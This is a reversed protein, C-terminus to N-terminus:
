GDEDGGKSLKRKELKKRCVSCNDPSNDNGQKSDDNFLLMWKECLSRGEVFYHWKKSNQLWNWGEIEVM